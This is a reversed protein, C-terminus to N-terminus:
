QPLERLSAMTKLFCHPMTIHKALFQSGLNGSHIPRWYIKDDKVFKCFISPNCQFTLQKHLRLKLELGSRPKQYLGWESRESQLRNSRNIALYLCSICLVIITKHENKYHVMTHETKAAIPNQTANYIFQSSTCFILPSRLPYLM